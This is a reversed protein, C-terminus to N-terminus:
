RRSLAEVEDREHGTLQAAARELLPKWDADNGRGSAWLALAERLLEEGPVLEAESDGRARARTVHADIRELCGRTGEVDGGTALVRALLLVSDPRATDGRRQEDIRIAARAHQEALELRGAQRHYLALYFEAAQEMRRNGLERALTRVETLDAAVFHHAQRYTWLAVRNALAAGLHLKDGRASCLPVVESFAKEAEDLRGLTALVYGLLVLAIVRTEYGADGLAVTQAAAQSLLEAAEVDRSFRLASRGRGLLLRAELAPVALGSSLQLAREVCDASRRYEDMWDLCTAEDLLLDVQLATDHLAEALHRSLALDALADDYRGLRYRMLGRNKLAFARVRPAAGGEPMCSLARSYCREAELYAHRAQASSACGLHSAAAIDLQQAGEAHHALRQLRELEPLEWASSFYRV